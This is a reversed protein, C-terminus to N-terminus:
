FSYVASVGGRGRKMLRGPDDSGVRDYDFSASFSWNKNRLYTLAVGARTTREDVDV